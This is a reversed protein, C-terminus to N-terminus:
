ELRQGLNQGGVKFWQPAGNGKLQDEVAREAAWGAIGEIEEPANSINQLAFYGTDSSM